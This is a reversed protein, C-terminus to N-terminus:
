TNSQYYLDFEVNINKVFDATAQAPTMSPDTWFKQIQNLMLTRHKAFIPMFAGVSSAPSNRLREIAKPFTPCVKSYFDQYRQSEVVRTTIAAYGTGTSWTYVQDDEMCFKIWEWAGNLKDENGSDIVWQSNGGVTLGNGEEYPLALFGVEFKGDALAYAKSINSSTTQYLGLNGAGFETFYDNVTLEVSIGPSNQWRRMLSFWEVGLNNKDIASATAIGNRGNNNNVLDKGVTSAWFEFVWGNPGFAAGMEADTRSAVLEAVKIVDDWSRIQEDPNDYGVERLLDANYVFGVITRGFGLNMMKGNVTYYNILDQELVSIDFSDRDIFNQVPYVTGSNVMYGSTEAECMFLDPLDGKATSKYKTLADNYVGQFQSDIQVDTHEANFKDVMSQLTDGMLDQMSHWLVITTPGDTDVEKAGSAFVSGMLLAVLLLVVTIKKM